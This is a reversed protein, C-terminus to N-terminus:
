DICMLKRMYSAYGEEMVTVLNELCRYCLDAEGVYELEIHCVSGKERCRECVGHRVPTFSSQGMDTM